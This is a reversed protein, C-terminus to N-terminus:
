EGGKIKSITKVVDDPPLEEQHGTTLNRLIIIKGAKEEERFILAYEAASRGASKLQAKLSRGLLDGDASIGANRLLNMTSFAERRLPETECAVYVFPGATKLRDKRIQELILLMREMGAAFGVAPVTRGGLEEVLGDYRGGGMFASQSGLLESLVEFATRTYYDFGRVIHSDVDYSIDLDGLLRQVESFHERCEFCLHDLILPASNLTVRCMENKCDFVRLPNKLMRELCVDCLRDRNAELFTVLLERHVPRCEPCGISNIKFTRELGRRECIRDFVAMVEVDAWAEASGIVEAGFQHFQRFRGKQPRERRYMPSIYFLKTVPTKQIMHHQIFARVVPATGEPRLTLSEGDRDEFTYMEKGVIDTESGISRSFLDTREFTPTRIETYNFLKMVSRVTDELEQWPIIDEGYIDRTGFVSRFTEKVVKKEKEAM